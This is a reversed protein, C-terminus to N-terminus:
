LQIIIGYLYDRVILDCCVLIYNRRHITNLAEKWSHMHLRYRHVSLNFLCRLSAWSFNTLADAGNVCAHVGSFFLKISIIRCHLVSCVFINKCIGPRFYCFNFNQTTSSKPVNVVHRWIFVELKFRLSWVRWKAKHVSWKKIFKLSFYPQLTPIKIIKTYQQLYSKHFKM